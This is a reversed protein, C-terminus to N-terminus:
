LLASLLVGLWTPSTTSSLILNCGSRCELTLHTATQSQIDPLANSPSSPTALVVNTPVFTLPPLVTPQIQKARKIWYILSNIKIGHQSCYAHRTLGSSRWETVHNLQQAPSIQNSPSM